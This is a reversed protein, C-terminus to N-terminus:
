FNGTVHIGTGVPRDAPEEKVDSHHGNLVLPLGIGVGVAGIGASVLGITLFDERDSRRDAALAFVFFWPAVSLLATGGGYLLISGTILGASAGRQPLVRLNVADPSDALDFSGTDKAGPVTVKYDSGRPVNARCPAQCVSGWGTVNKRVLLAGEPGELMVLVRPELGQIEVIAQKSTRTPAVAPPASAPGDTPLADAAEAPAPPATPSQAEPPAAPPSSDFSASPPSPPTQALVHSTSCFVALSLGLSRLRM